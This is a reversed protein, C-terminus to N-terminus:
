GHMRYPHTDQALAALRLVERKIGIFCTPGRKDQVGFPAVLPVPRVAAPLSKAQALWLGVLIFLLPTPTNHNAPPTDDFPRSSGYFRGERLVSGHRCAGDRARSGDVLVIGAADV